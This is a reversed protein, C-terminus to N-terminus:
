RCKTILVDEHSTAENQRLHIAADIWPTICINTIPKHLSQSAMSLLHQSLPPSDKPAISQSSSLTQETLSSPVELRPMKAPPQHPLLPPPYAALIPAM